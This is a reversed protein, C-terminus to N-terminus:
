LPKAEDGPAGIMEVCAEKRAHTSIIPVGPSSALLPESTHQHHSGICICTPRTILLTLANGNVVTGEVLTDLEAFKLRLPADAEDGRVTFKFEHPSGRLM